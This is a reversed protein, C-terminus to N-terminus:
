LSLTRLDRIAVHISLTETTDSEKRGWSCYAGRDTSNKCALVSFHTAMEKELPDQWGLSQVQM